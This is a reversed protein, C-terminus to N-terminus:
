KETNAKEVIDGVCVMDHAEFRKALDRLVKVAAEVENRTIPECDWHHCTGDHYICKECPRDNM